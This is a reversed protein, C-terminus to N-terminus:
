SLFYHCENRRACHSIVHQQMFQSQTDIVESRLPEFSPNRQTLSYPHFNKIQNKM